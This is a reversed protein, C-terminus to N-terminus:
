EDYLEHLNERLIVEDEEPLPELKAYLDLMARQARDKRRLKNIYHAAEEYLDDGKSATQLRTVLDPKEWM